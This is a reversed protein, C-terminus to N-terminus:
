NETILPPIGQMECALLYDNYTATAGLERATCIQTKYKATIPEMLIERGAIAEALTLPRGFLPIFDDGNEIEGDDGEFPIPLVLTESLLQMRLEYEFRNLAVCCVVIGVKGSELGEKALEGFPDSM